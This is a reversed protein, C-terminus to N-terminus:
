RFVEVSVVAFCEEPEKRQDQSETGNRGQRSTVQLIADEGGDIEDFNVESWHQQEEHDHIEGAAWREAWASDQDEKETESAFYEPEALNAALTSNGKGGRKPCELKWHGYEQCIACRSKAIRDM